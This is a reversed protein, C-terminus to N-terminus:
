ALLGFSKLAYVGITFTVVSFLTTIIFIDAALEADANMNCAMVYSSVATPSGLLIYLILLASGRLGLLIAIPLFVVPLIVIKIFSAILAIKFKKNKIQGVSITGGIALMAIPTAINAMYNLSTNIIVPIKIDLICFPLALVIGIILPNKSINALTSKLNFKSEVNSRLTLVIVSLINFLPVIFATVLAGKIVVDNGGVSTALALGILAFNSRFAGQVFSGISSKEKIFHEAGIWIVIFSILSSSIALALLKVDFFDKLDASAIDRFLLAPLAVYFLIINMKKVVNDDIIGKVKLVYGLLLIIFIPLVANLSFVLNDIVLAIMEVRMQNKLDLIM